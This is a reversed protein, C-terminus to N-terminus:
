ALASTVEGIPSPKALHLDFGAEKARQKDEPQAYGTLAVLRTSRFAADARLTRAVGYGDLGPLGIDCLVVDPKLERAMALGTHGDRALRVEHGELELAAALTEAADVNDEIILVRRTVRSPRGHAAFAADPPAKALPLTVVFESGLGSGASRAEIGGGQLEVLGKALALGLGLGDRRRSRTREEQADLDFLHELVVREMGMGSDRVLMEAQNRHSGLKVTVQGGAPTFKGANHLLKLLVHTIRAPDADVWVPRSPLDLELVVQAQDFTPRLDLCTSQVLKRLDFRERHLPLHGQGVRAVDVLDDLQRALLEAQRRVVERARVAQLSDRPVRELLELGTQIAALPSRLEHSVLSLSAAKRAESDRLAEEVRKRETIDLVMGALRVPRGMQDFFARGHSAVWRTKAEPWALRMEADYDTCHLRPDMEARDARDRDDPNFTATFVEQSLASDRRLAFLSKFRDTWVLDGTLINWDWAGTRAAEKARLLKAESHKREDVERELEAQRRATETASAEARDRSWSMLASMGAIVICVSFYFATGQVDSVSRRGATHLPAIFFWEAAYGLAIALVTPAAGALFATSVVAVFFTPYLFQGQFHPEGALRGILAFGTLVIALGYRGIGYGALRKEVHVVQRRVPPGLHLFGLARRVAETIASVRSTM